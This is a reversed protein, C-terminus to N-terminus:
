KRPKIIRLFRGSVRFLSMLIHLSTDSRPDPEARHSGAIAGPSAFVWRSMLSLKGTRHSLVSVSWLSHPAERVQSIGTRDPCFGMARPHGQQLLSSPGSSGSHDRGGKGMRLNQSVVKKKEKKLPQYEQPGKVAM